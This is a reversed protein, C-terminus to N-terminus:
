GWRQASGRGSSRGAETVAGQDVALCRSIVVTSETNFRVVDHGQPHLTGFFSRKAGSETVISAAAGSEAARLACVPWRQRLRRRADEVGDLVAM